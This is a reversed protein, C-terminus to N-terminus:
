GEQRRVRNLAYIQTGAFDAVILAVIAVAWQGATTFPVWDILLLVISGLVWAIDLIIAVLALQRVLSDERTVLQFLALGYPILIIGTLILILPAPIGLFAALPGAGILCVLGSITCFLGNAQLM